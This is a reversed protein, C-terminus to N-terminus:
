WAVYAVAILNLLDRFLKTSSPTSWIIYDASSVGNHTTQPALSHLASTDSPIRRVNSLKDPVPSSMVITDKDVASYLASRHFWCLLSICVALKCQVLGYSRYRLNLTNSRSQFFEDLRLTGWGWGQGFSVIMGHKASCTHTHLSWVVCLM